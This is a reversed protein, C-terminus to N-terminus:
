GFRIDVDSIWPMDVFTILFIDKSIWPYGFSYGRQYGESIRHSIWNMDMFSIWTIDM